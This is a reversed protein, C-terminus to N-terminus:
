AMAPDRTQKLLREIENWAKEFADVNGDGKDNWHAAALIITARQVVPPATTEDWSPDARTDIYKFIADSAHEITTSLESDRAPDPVRLQEKVIALSVLKM